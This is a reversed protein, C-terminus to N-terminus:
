MNERIAKIFDLSNVVKPNELTTILALDKTMTGSEITKLTTKELKDSIKVKGSMGMHWIICLNDTLYIIIYKALREYKKISTNKLKNEVGEPVFERLRRNKIEVDLIRAKGIGQEIAKKITEVEPLEPM